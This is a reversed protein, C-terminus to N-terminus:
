LFVFSHFSSITSNSGFATKLCGTVPSTTVTGSVMAPLGILNASPSSGRIANERHSVDGSFGSKALHM